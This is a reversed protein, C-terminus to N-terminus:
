KMGKARLYTTLGLAIIIILLPPIVRKLKM